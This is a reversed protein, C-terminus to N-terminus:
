IVSAMMHRQYSDPLLLSIGNQHIAGIGRQCLCDDGGWGDMRKAPLLVFPNHSINLVKDKRHVRQNAKISLCQHFCHVMRQLWKPVGDKKWHAWAHAQHEDFFLGANPGHQPCFVPQSQQWPRHLVNNKQLQSSREQSWSAPAAIHICGNLLDNFPRHHIAECRQVAIHLEEQLVCALPVIGKIHRCVHEPHDGACLAWHHLLDPLRQDGEVPRTPRLPGCEEQEQVDCGSSWSQWDEANGVQFSQCREGEIGRCCRVSDDGGGAPAQCHGSPWAKQTSYLCVRIKGGGSGPQIVCPMVLLYNILHTQLQSLIHHYNIHATKRLGRDGRYIQQQILQSLIKWSKKKTLEDVNLNSSSLEVVSWVGGSIWKICIQIGVNRQICMRM